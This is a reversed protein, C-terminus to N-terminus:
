ERILECQSTKNGCFMRQDVYVKYYPETKISSSKTHSCFEMGKWRFRINYCSYQLENTATAGCGDKRLTMFYGHLHSTQCM